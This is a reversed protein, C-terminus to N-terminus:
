EKGRMLDGVLVQEGSPGADSNDIPELTIAFQSVDQLGQFM